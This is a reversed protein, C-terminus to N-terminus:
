QGNRECKTCSFTVCKTCFSCDLAICFSALAADTPKVLYNM